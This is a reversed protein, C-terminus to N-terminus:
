VLSMDVPFLFSTFLDIWSIKKPMKSVYPNQLPSQCYAFHTGSDTKPVVHASIGIQFILRSAATTSQYEINFPRKSAKLSTLLYRASFSKSWSIRFTSDSLATTKKSQMTAITEFKSLMLAIPLYRQAAQMKVETTLITENARPPHNTM